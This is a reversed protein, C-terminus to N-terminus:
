ADTAGAVALSEGRRFRCEAVDAVLLPEIAFCRM